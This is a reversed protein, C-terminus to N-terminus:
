TQVDARAGGPARPAMCALGCGNSCCKQAGPCDSDSRCREDCAGVTGAPLAPCVGPRVCGTRCCKQGGPCQADRSCKEVCLGPRQLTPCIGPREPVCFPCAASLGPSFFFRLQGTIGPLLPCLRSWAAGNVRLPVFCLPWVPESWLGM